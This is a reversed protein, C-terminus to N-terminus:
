WKLIAHYKNSFTYSIIKEKLIQGFKSSDKFFM